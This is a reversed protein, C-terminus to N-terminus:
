SSPYWSKVLECKCAEHKLYQPSLYWQKVMEGKCAEHKLCQLNPYRIKFWNIRVHKTSLPSHIKIDLCQPSIYGINSWKDRVPRMRLPSHFSIDETFGLHSSGDVRQSKFLLLPVQITLSSTVHLAHSRARGVEKM